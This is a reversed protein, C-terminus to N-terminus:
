ATWLEGIAKCMACTVAWACGVAAIVSFVPIAVMFAATKLLKM